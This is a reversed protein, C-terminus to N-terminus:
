NLSVDLENKSALWTRPLQAAQDRIARRKSIKRLIEPFLGALKALKM